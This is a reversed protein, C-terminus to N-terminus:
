PTLYKSLKDWTKKGVIGDAKLNNAKQFSRIAQKTKPGIKGDITGSYHGTNKLAMQINKPTSKKVADIATAPQVYTNKERSRELDRGLNNVAQEKKELEGELYRIRNQLEYIQADSTKRTTACGALFVVSLVFIVLAKRM